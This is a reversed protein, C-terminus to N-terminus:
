GILASVDIVPGPRAAVGIAMTLALLPDIRGTSKRKSLKRNGAADMEVKANAAAMTLVPHGDHRLKGEEVLRELRDVAPSLDKYGQGFPTLEVNCGIADLERKIDEIRWRDFALQRIHFIGHLEAIKTAVAKPDTARGPFTLLYGEDRWLRYPMADEDERETLTDGPLWCFPLVDFAGVGDDFVLTLATMDKSAGLDLGAYCPRGRLDRIDCASTSNAKWLAMNLFPASADVRQNLVYRRFSMASSPVRQGLLALRKVDELSRFDNLAPNALRWTALKWPEAEAPATYLTLHFGADKIEGREIRLGYDVLESMPAIDSAAQTSIVLMLPQARGGLATSLADYLERNPVQALEDYCVFSPSLGHVPAVDASLVRFTSGNVMDELERRFRVVNIRENLWPIRTIIAVMENFIRGAQDKTCAVSYTEGRLESEPGSLHALCLAAAMQTKGNKRAVSLVATRVTRNGQKDCRYVAKIFKLQWPRLKLITGALPGQTCPLSNVFRIVREARSLGPADWPHSPLVTSRSRRATRKPTANIGRM